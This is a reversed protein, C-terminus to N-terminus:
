RPKMHLRCIRYTKWPRFLSIVPFQYGNASLPVAREPVKLSNYKVKFYYITRVEAFFRGRASCALKVILYNIWCPNIVSFFLVVM